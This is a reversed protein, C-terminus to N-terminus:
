YELYRLLYKLIFDPGEVLFHQSKIICMWTLENWTIDKCFHPKTFLESVIVPIIQIKESIKFMLGSVIVPIIQIMDLIKFMLGSVIVPIIQIM